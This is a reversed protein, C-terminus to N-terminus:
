DHSMRTASWCGTNGIILSLTRTICRVSRKSGDPNYFQRVYPFWEVPLFKAWDHIVAQHIPVGLKVCGVFVHWKHRLVYKLYSIHGRM